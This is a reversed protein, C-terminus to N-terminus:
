PGKFPHVPSNNVSLDQFRNQYPLVSNENMCSHLSLANDTRESSKGLKESSKLALMKKGKVVRLIPEGGVWMGRWLTIPM